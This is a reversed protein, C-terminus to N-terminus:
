ESAEWNPDTSQLVARATAGVITDEDFQESLRKYMARTEADLSEDRSTPQSQTSM